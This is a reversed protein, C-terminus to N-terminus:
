LNIVKQREKELFTARGKVPARSVPKTLAPPEQTDQTSSTCHLRKLGLSKSLGRRLGGLGEGTSGGLRTGSRDLEM